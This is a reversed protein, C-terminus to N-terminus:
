DDLGRGGSSTSKATDTAIRTRIMREADKSINSKALIEDISYGADLSAQLAIIDNSYVGLNELQSVFNRSADDDSLTFTQKKGTTLPKDKTTKNAKTVTAVAKQRKIKRDFEADDRKQKEDAVASVLASLSVNWKKAAEQLFKEKETESLKSLKEYVQHAHSESIKTEYALNDAIEKLANQKEAKIEKVRDMKEKLIDLDNKSRATEADMLSKKEERDLAEIKARQENEAVQIHGMLLDPTSQADNHQIGLLQLGRKYNDYQTNVSNQQNMRSAQISAILAKTSANSQQGLTDLMKAYPDTNSVNNINVDTTTNAGSGNAGPAGNGGNTPPNLGSLMTQLDNSYSAFEANAPAASVVLQNKPGLNYSQGVQVLGTLGQYDNPHPNNPNAVLNPNYQAFQAPTLGNAQAVGSATQGETFTNTTPQM